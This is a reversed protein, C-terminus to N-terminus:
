VRRKLSQVFRRAEDAAARAERATTIRPVNAGRELHKTEALTTEALTRYADLLLRRLELTSAGRSGVGSRVALVRADPQSPITTFSAELLEGATIHRVGQDDLKSDLRIFGVSMSRLHGEAVLKRIVQAKPTSAFTGDVKLMSGDYYPTGSGILGETSHVHDTHIPIREPLPAFAGVDIRENDRDLSATSLVSSFSGHPDSPDRASDLAKVAFDVYHLVGTV